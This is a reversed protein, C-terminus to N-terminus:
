KQRCFMYNYRGDPYLIKIYPNSNLQFLETSKWFGVQSQDRFQTVDTSYLGRIDVVYSFYTDTPLGGRDKAKFEIIPNFKDTIEDLQFDLNVIEKRTINNLNMILINSYLSNKDITCFSPLGESGNFKRMILSPIEVRHKLMKKIISLDNKPTLSLRNLLYMFNEWNAYIIMELEKEQNFDFAVIKEGGIEMGIGVVSEVTSNDSSENSGGNGEVGPDGGNGEVGPDGVKKSLFNAEKVELGNSNFYRYFIKDRYGWSVDWVDSAFKENEIREILELSKFYSTFSSTPFKMNYSTAHGLLVPIYVDTFRDVEDGEISNLSIKRIFGIAPSGSEGSFIKIDTSFISNGATFRVENEIGGNIHDIRSVKFKEVKRKSHKPFLFYSFKNTRELMQKNLLDLKIEPNVIYLNNLKNYIALPNYNKGYLQILQDDYSNHTLWHNQVIELEKDESFVKVKAKGGLTVHSATRVFYNEGIKVIYGSGVINHIRKNSNENSNESEFSAVIKVLGSNVDSIYSLNPGTTEITIASTFFSLILESIGMFEGIVM